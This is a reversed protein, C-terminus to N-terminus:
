PDNKSEENKVLYNALMHDFLLHMHNFLLHYYLGPNIREKKCLRNSTEIFMGILVEHPIQILQEIVWDESVQEESVQITQKKGFLKRFLTM